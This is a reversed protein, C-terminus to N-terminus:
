EHVQPMGRSKGKMRRMLIEGTCQVRDCQRRKLKDAFIDFGRKEKKETWSERGENEKSEKTEDDDCEVGRDVTGRQPGCAVKDCKRECAEERLLRVKM